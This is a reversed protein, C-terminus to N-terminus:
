RPTAVRRFASIMAPSVLGAKRGEAEAQDLTKGQSAALVALVGGVRNSSHCHLLVPGAQPDALVATVKEVDALTLSDPTVPVWVYRLGGSTVPQEEAQAGEKETRLNIVTRFGLAQLRALGEATPQGGAALNPSLRTYNPILAPDVSSPLTGADHPAPAQAAVPLAALLCALAVSEFRRGTRTM